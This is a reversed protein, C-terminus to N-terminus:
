LPQNAQRSIFSFGREAAERMEPSMDFDGLEDRKVWRIDEHYLMRINKQSESLRCLFAIEVCHAGGEHVTYSFAHYPQLVEVGVGLEERIERKLAEEPTEGFEIKGGPLEYMGPFISDRTSRKGILVRSGKMIFATAVVRQIRKM